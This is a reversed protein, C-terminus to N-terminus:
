DLSGDVQVIKAEATAGKRIGASVSSPVQGAKGLKLIIGTGGQSFRRDKAGKSRGRRHYLPPPASLNPSREAAARRQSSCSHADRECASASRRIAEIAPQHVPQSPSQFIASRIVRSM